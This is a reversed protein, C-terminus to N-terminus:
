ISEISPITRIPNVDSDYDVGSINFGFLRYFDDQYGKLDSLQMINETSVEAFLARIKDQTEEQMELDDIRIYGEEDRMPPNNAYLHDHFLRYIQEICGEHTGNEKMLKFLLAIYLPVVPIAASSQTVVAKDVSIVAKGHLSRLKENLMDATHKLDIKAHGITGEKYLRYTVEPGIYSYAVTQIGDALLNEKLLFEIWMKWDDGGMVAITDSIEQQSAPEIAVEKVEGRFVDVTKGVFPAGVPKLVSSHLQGTVPHLRRPTALSYIILDVQELDDRILQATKEKIEQSFADGNISKAYYGNQHAIHEYAATNYWGASATREGEAPKEYFVGITKAGSGFTATIRSALGYGTSAGIILVRAPGEFRPKSQIYKIQEEVAKYCGDPHATTCIFGRIKPKIIM